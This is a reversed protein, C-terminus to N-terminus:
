SYIWPEMLPIAFVGVAAAAPLVGFV